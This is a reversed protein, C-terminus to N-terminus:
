RALVALACVVGVVASSKGSIDPSWSRENARLGACADNM